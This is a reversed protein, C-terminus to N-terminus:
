DDLPNNSHEDTCKNKKGMLREHPSMCSCESLLRHLFIYFKRHLGNSTYLRQGYTDRRCAHLFSPVHEGDRRGSSAVASQYALYRPHSPNLEGQVLVIQLFWETVQVVRVSYATFHKTRPQPRRTSKTLNHIWNAANTSKQKERPKILRETGWCICKPCANPWYKLNQSYIDNWINSSLVYL